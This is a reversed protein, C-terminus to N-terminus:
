RSSRVPLPNKPSMPPLQSLDAGADKNDTAARVGPNGSAPHLRFQEPLLLHYPDRDPLPQNWRLPVDVASADEVGPLRTWQVRDLQQVEDPQDSQWLLLPRFGLLFNSQGNWRFEKWLAQPNAPAGLQLLPVPVRAVLVSNECVLTWRPPASSAALRARVLGGDLLATLHDLRVQLQSPHEGASATEEPLTLMPEPSAFFGNLWELHVAHAPPLELLSAEGRVVTNRLTIRVEPLDQVSGAPMMMAEKGGSPALSFFRVQPHFSHRSGSANVVTLVCNDLELEAGQDLQFLSWGQSAPVGSLDLRLDVNLLRVRGGRQAIMSRPQRVPDLDEPAFLLEPRYGEAARITVRPDNWQWPRQPHPGTFRLEIVEGSAAHDIAEQLSGVVRRQVDVKAQPDVVWVGAPPLATRAPLTTDTPEKQAEPVDALLLSAGPVAPGLEVSPLAADLTNGADTGLQGPSEEAKTNESETNPESPNGDAASAGNGPPAPVSPQEEPSSQEGAPSSPRKQQEPRKASHDQSGSAPERQVAPAQDTSPPEGASGAPISVLELPPRVPEGTWTVVGQVALAVLALVALPVLWSALRSWRRSQWAPDPLAVSVDGVLAVGLQDAVRVIQRILEGPTQFRQAPDKALMHEVLQALEEPVQPNLERLKPPPENQHQLLKQLVTGHPFPPRGSLVFFLTCGLSYIDSRIDVNRPDRAQEPSIYDFTGLTVGSATLDHSQDVEHLRALGMDVLKAKGDPTILVNSPKVDRHVVNRSHAHALAQAVQFALQLAREPPLPGSRAVLDRLNIGEIYEFVIFYLGRDHGVYYVRAINEHDLRAASRAENQFRRVTEPDQAHMQSLVKLAVTRNLRLDTARFVVGMGGGGILSDLRFHELQQGVLERAWDTTVVPTPLPPAKSIVTPGDEPVPAPLPTGSGSAQQKRPAEQRWASSEPQGGPANM